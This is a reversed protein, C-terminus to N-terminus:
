ESRFDFAAPGPHSWDNVATKTAAGIEHAHREAGEQLSSISMNKTPLASNTFVPQFISPARRPLDTFRCIRQSATVTKFM